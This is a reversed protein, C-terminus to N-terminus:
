FGKIRLFWSVEPLWRLRGTSCVVDAVVDFLRRRPKLLIQTQNASPGMGEDFKWLLKMHLHKKEFNLGELIPAQNM